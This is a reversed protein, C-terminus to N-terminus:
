VLTNNSFDTLPVITDVIKILKYEFENWCDQVSDRNLAWDESRLMDCLNTKSYNCWNRRISSLAAPKFIDYKLIVM